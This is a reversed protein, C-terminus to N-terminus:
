KPLINRFKTTSQTRVRYLYDKTYVNVVYYQQKGSDVVTQLSFNVAFLSQEDADNSFVVYTNESPLYKYRPFEDKDKNYTLLYSVGVRGCFAGVESIAKDLGRSAFRQNIAILKNKESEDNSYSNFTPAVGFVLSTATDDIYKVKNIYYKYPQEKGYYYLYDEKITKLNSGVFPPIDIPPIYLIFDKLSQEVYKFLTQENEIDKETISYKIM